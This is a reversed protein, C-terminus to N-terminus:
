AESMEFGALGREVLDRVFDKVHTGADPPVNKCSEHLENLINEVTHKGDLRKWVFVSVPNIGFTHGSDPEFLIAWDDFEERLVVVPNAVPKAGEELMNAYRRLRMRNCNRM